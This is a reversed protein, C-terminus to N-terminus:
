SDETPTSTQPSARRWLMFRQMFFIMSATALGTAIYAYGLVAGMLGIPNKRVLEFAMATGFLILNVLLIFGLAPWFHRWFVNASYWIAQLPGVGTAFIADDVFFLYFSAILGIALFMSSMLALLGPGIFSAVGILVMAVAGVPLSLALLVVFLLCFRLWGQIARDILQNLVFAEQRIAQAISTLYFSAGLLSLLGLFLVHGFLGGFSAVESTPPGHLEPLPREIANILSPVRWALVGLLNADRFGAVTDQLEQLQKLAPDLDQGEEEESLVERPVTLVNDQLEQGAPSSARLLALSEDLVPEVSIGPGFVFIVDVLIPLLLLWLRKNVTAFGASLTDIIGLPVTPVM